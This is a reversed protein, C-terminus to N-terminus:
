GQATGSSLKAYEAKREKNAPIHSAVPPFREIAGGLHLPESPFIGRHKQMTHTSSEVSETPHTKGGLM